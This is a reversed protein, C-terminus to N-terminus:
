DSVRHFVCTKNYVFETIGTAAIAALWRFWREFGSLVMAFPDGNYHRLDVSVIMFCPLSPIVGLFIM